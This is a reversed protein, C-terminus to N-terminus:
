GEHGHGLHLHDHRLGIWMSSLVLIKDHGLYHVYLVPKGGGEVRCLIEILGCALDSFLTKRYPFAVGGHGHVPKIGLHAQRSGFDWTESKAPPM